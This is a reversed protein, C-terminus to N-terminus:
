GRGGRGSSARRIGHCVDEVIKRWDKAMHGRLSCKYCKFESMSLTAHTGSIPPVGPDAASLLEKIVDRTTVDRTMPGSLIALVLCAPAMDELMQLFDM